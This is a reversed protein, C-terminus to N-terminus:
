SRSARVIGVVNPIPWAFHNADNENSGTSYSGVFEYEEKGNNIYMQAESGGEVYMIRQLGVPLGMLINILDYTTYPSRVHIFLVHNDKDMGIAATSWKKSQPKWVNKGQCSVMRISQIITGYQKRLRPLNDCERDIIRVPPLSKDLPDFALFTNDKSVWKNNVHNRTKMMSVSTVLDAQYMSANIAAVLGKNLSWEKASLRQGYNPASANLLRFEFKSPDIRLIQILSDGVNSKRPSVLTGLDLGPELRLWDGKTQAISPQLAYLFFLATGVALNSINLHRQVMTIM